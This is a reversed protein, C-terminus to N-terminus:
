DGAHTREIFLWRDEEFAFRYIVTYSYFTAMDTSKVTVSASEPGSYSHNSVYLVGGKKRRLDNRKASAWRFESLWGASKLATLNKVTTASYSGSYRVVLPFRTHEAIYDWGNGRIKAAFTGIFTRFTAYSAFDCEEALVTEERVVKWGNDVKELELTKEGRDCYDEPNWQYEFRALVLDDPMRKLELNSVTLSAGEKLVNERKKLWDEREMETKRKREPLRSVGTFESSLLSQYTEFDGDRQSALWEDEIFARASDKWSERQPKEEKLERVQVSVGDISEEDTNGEAAQDGEGRKLVVVAVIVILIIVLLAGGGAGGAMLGLRVMRKRITGNLEEIEHQLKEDRPIRNRARRLIDRAGSLKGMDRASSAAELASDRLIERPASPSDPDLDVSRVAENFATLHDEREAAERATIDLAEAMAAREKAGRPDTTARLIRRAGPADGGRAHLLGGYARIGTERCGHKLAIEIHPRAEDLKGQEILVSAMGENGEMNGPDADLLKAYIALKKEVDM